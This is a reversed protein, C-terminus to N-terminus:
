SIRFEYVGGGGFFLIIIIVQISMQPRNKKKVFIMATDYGHHETPLKNTAPFSRCSQMPSRSHISHSGCSELIVM